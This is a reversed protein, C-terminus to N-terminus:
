AKERERSRSARESERGVRKKKKSELGRTGVETAGVRQRRAEKEREWM